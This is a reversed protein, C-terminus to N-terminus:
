AVVIALLACSNRPSHLMFRFFFFVTPILTITFSVHWLSGPNLLSSLQVQGYFYLLFFVLPTNGMVSVLYLANPFM